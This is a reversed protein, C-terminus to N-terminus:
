EIFAMIIEPMIKYRIQKRFETKENSINVLTENKNFTDSICFCICAPIGAQKAANICASAEMDIFGCNIGKFFDLLKFEAYYSEVSLSKDTHCAINLKSSENRAVSLISKHLHSDVFVSKGFCDYEINQQHYRSAGEACILEEPFAMDGVNVNDNFAGASGCMMIRKCKTIEMARVIDAVSYAGVGSVIYTFKKQYINCKWIECNNKSILTCDIIGVSKPSWCPAIIVSEEIDSIKCGLIFESLKVIDM